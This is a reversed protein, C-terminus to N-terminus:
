NLFSEQILDQKLLFYLKQYCKGILVEGGTTNKDFTLLKNRYYEYQKKRAELEAELEAELSSFADLIRVVEEQVPLPPVPIKLSLVAKMSPHQIGAGRYFSSILEINNSMWYYLFKNSLVNTDNSTAIRNDGTIFKGKYYKVNPTGGWPIAVIEGNCLNNGALEETTYKIEGIGTSLIRVDGNKVVLANVDNALLYPYKIVKKQKEKEVGNFKKDWSTLEWLEKFQVGNPCYQKILDDIKSM